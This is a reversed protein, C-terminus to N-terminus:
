MERAEQFKISSSARCHMFVIPFAELAEAAVAGTWGERDITQGLSRVARQLHDGGRLGVAFWNGPGIQQAPDIGDVHGEAGGAASPEAHDGEDGVGVRRLSNEAREAKRGMRGM